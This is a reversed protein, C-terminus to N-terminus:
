NNQKACLKLSAAKCEVSGSSHSWKEDPKLQEGSELKRGALKHAGELDLVDREIVVRASM